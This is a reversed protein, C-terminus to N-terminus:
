ELQSDNWVSESDSTRKSMERWWIKLFIIFSLSAISHNSTWSCHKRRLRARNKCKKVYFLLTSSDKNQSVEFHRSTRKALCFWQITVKFQTRVWSLVSIEGITSARTNQHLFPFGARLAPSFYPNKVTRDSKGLIKVTRHPPPPDEASVLSKLRPELFM